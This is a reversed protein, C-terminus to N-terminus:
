FLGHGEGVVKPHGRPHGGSGGLDLRNGSVHGQHREQRENQGAGDDSLAIM